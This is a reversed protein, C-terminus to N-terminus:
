REEPDPEPPRSSDRGTLAVFASELTATIELDRAATHNLLHRAVQDSDRTHLVVSDGYAEASDVGPLARVAALEAGPWLVRIRRGTALNKIRAAPGDAVVVGERVVVIRDAHADAEDLYHTAFLVARGREADRRVAKWFDQRAEVDMGTTPEDLVLVQPEPLLALAFRLRQQEGGSCKGVRRGAIPTLGAVEMVQDVPRATPYVSAVYRVTEAVTFDRLLGGSQLVAAVLGHRVADVPPRGCVRVTGSDPRALGLLLDITTSKGAGNPGLFAVVEGAEVRLNLGNVATVEGFQKRVDVLEIVTHGTPQRHTM